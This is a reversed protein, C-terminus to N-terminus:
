LSPCAVAFSSGPCTYSHGLGADNYTSDTFRSNAVASTFSRYHGMPWSSGSDLCARLTLDGGGAGSCNCSTTNRCPQCGGQCGVDDSPTSTGQSDYTTNCSAASMILQRDECWFDGVLCSSADTGFSALPVNCDLCTTGNVTCAGAAYVHM